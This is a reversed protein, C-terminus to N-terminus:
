ASKAAGAHGAPAAEDPGPKEYGLAKLVELVESWTPFMRGSSQKYDAMAHMFEMEAGSYDRECTTPDVFRRRGSVQRANAARTAQASARRNVWPQAEADTGADGDIVPTPEAKVVPTPRKSVPGPAKAATPPRQKSSKAHDM